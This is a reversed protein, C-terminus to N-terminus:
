DQAADALKGKKGRRKPKFKARAAPAPELPKWDFVAGGDDFRVIHAMGNRLPDTIPCDARRHLDRSERRDIASRMLVEGMDYLNITELCRIMEFRDTARLGEDIKAKLRGLHQLGAELMPGSRVIGAYDRMTQHLAYTADKWDYDAGGGTRLFAAARRRVQDVTAQEREGDAALASKAYLAANEGAIWGFVSAASIGNGWEDGATYLGAINTAAGQDRFIGGVAITSYTMFEVPNKRLDVGEGNLHDVVAQNGENSLSHVLFELDEESIGRCDMYVPGQASEFIRAFLEKDVEPTKDGHLRDPKTVYPGLPEDFHDRYVGIWSGQGQRAFNRLGVHRYIMEMNALEAGARYVMARGDGTLTIPLSDNALMAPTIGPYLRRVEGTGVFVAKARFVYLRDERTDVGVAGSVARGDGLLEAVMVRNVIKVGRRRAQKTLVMKQNKGWYKLRARLRGPFAHGAFTWDGDARMPIGWQDWLKVIDFSKDLWVKAPTTGVLNAIGGGKGERLEKLYADLDDGHVEPIYCLFHDNGASGAGSTLTNGKDALVVKAGMEAARIAAMLGAIGGGVVLVDAEITEMRKSAM